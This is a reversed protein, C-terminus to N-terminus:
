HLGKRWITKLINEIVPVYGLALVYAAEVPIEMYFSLIGGLASIILTVYLKSMEFDQNQKKFFSSLGYTLGAGIAALIPYVFTIDM